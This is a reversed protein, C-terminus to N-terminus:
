ADIEWFTAFVGLFRGAQAEVPVASVAVNRWQGDLGCYRVERHSPIRKSLAVGIPFDLEALPNGELDSLRFMEGIQEASVPGMDDFAVGLLREASDNYYLLNGEADMLWFPVTLYSALQRLLIM